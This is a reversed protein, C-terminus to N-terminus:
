GWDKSIPYYNRFIRNKIFLRCNKNFSEKNRGKDRNDIRAFFM